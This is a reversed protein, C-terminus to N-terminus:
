RYSATSSFLGQRGVCPIPDEFLQFNEFRWAFRGPTWIGYDSETNSPTLLETPQIDVLEITGLLAGYPLNALNLGDAQLRSDLVFFQHRDFKKKAAHILLPGRYKTKWSRTEYEKLGVFIASAWPQWLSLAKM